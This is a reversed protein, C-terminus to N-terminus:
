GEPAAALREVGRQRWGGGEGEFAACSVLWQAAQHPRGTMAAIEGLHFAAEPLPGAQWARALLREAQVLDGRRCSLVGARTLLAAHGPARELAEALVDWAEAGRGVRELLQARLAAAAPALDPGFPHHTLREAAEGARGERELRLAAALAEVDTRPGSM